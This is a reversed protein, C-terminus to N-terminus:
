PERNKEVFLHQWQSCLAEVRAEPPIRHGYALQVWQSTLGSFFDSVEHCTNRTVLAVCEGETSSPPFRVAHSEMLHTLTARYLLGLAARHEGDRWGSQVQGIVDDPLSDHGVPLGFLVSPVAESASNERRAGAGPLHERLWDRYRHAFILILALVVLWLILESARALFLVADRMWPSLLKSPKEEDDDLNLEDLWKPISTTQQQHFAEQATIKEITLQASSATLVERVPPEEALAPSHPAFGALLITVWFISLAARSGTRRGGRPQDVQSRLRRFALEIDWAELVTRRNLYLAFGCAIYFPAILSMALYVLFNQGVVLANEESSLVQFWDIDVGVPLFLYVLMLVAFYLAMEVHMAVTTLWFAANSSSKHLTRLRLSRAKSALGELQLVPLDMSRTLSLRRLTLSALWQRRALSPFARLTEKLSPLEGFLARSLIHLIAREWLPKLWWMLTIAIVPSNWLVLHLVIFVPLSVALWAKLLPWWWERAMMIGLDLAEWPSRPRVEVTIRDFQM